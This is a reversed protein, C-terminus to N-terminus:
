GRLELRHADLNDFVDVLRAEHCSGLWDLVLEGLLETRVRHLNELENAVDFSGITAAAQTAARFRRRGDCAMQVDPSNKALGGSTTARWWWRFHRARSGSSCTRITSHPTEMAPNVKETNRSTTVRVAPTGIRQSCSAVVPKKAQPTKMPMAAAVRRISWRLRTSIVLRRLPGFRVNRSVTLRSTMKDTASAISTNPMWFKM